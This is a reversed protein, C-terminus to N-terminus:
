LPVFRKLKGASTREISAVRTVMIDADDLGAKV